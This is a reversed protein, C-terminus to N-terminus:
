SLPLPGSAAAVTLQGNSVAVNFSNLRDDVLENISLTVGTRGGFTGRLKVKALETQQASRAIIDNEDRVSIQVSNGDPAIWFSAFDRLSESFKVSEIEAVEPADVTVKFAYHHLGNPAANLTVPLWVAAGLSLQDSKISVTQAYGLVSSFLSGVVLVCLGGIARHM